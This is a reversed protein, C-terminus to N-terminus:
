EILTALKGGIHLARQVFPPSSTKTPAVLAGIVAPIAKATPAPKKGTRLIAKAVRLRTHLVVSRGIIM